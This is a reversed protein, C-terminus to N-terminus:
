ANYSFVVSCFCTTILVNSQLSSRDKDDRSGYVVRKLERTKIIKMWVAM